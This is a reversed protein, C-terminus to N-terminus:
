PRVVEGAAALRSSLREEERRLAAGHEGDLEQQGHPTIRVLLTPLHPGTHEQRTTSVWGRHLLTKWSRSLVWATEYGGCTSVGRLLRLQELTPKKYRRPKAAAATCEPCITWGVVARWGRAAARTRMDEVSTRAQMSANCQDCVVELVTRIKM